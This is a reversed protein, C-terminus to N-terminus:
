ATTPEPVASRLIRLLVMASAITLGDEEKIRLLAPDYRDLLHPRSDLYRVLGERGSSPEQVLSAVALRAQVTRLDMVLGSAAVPSFGDGEAQAALHDRLWPLSLRDGVEFFRRAVALLDLDLTRAVDIVFVAAPMMDFTAARIAAAEPMGRQTFSQRRVEFAAADEGQLLEPLAAQLRALPAQYSQMVAEISGDALREQVLWGVIGEVATVLEEMAAYAVDPTLSEDSELAAVYARADLLDMAMLGAKLIAAPTGGSERLTRHVFTPGLLDVVLNTAVTAVIERRLPHQALADPFRERVAPPMDRLMLPLLAPDSPLDTELLRRYTGMKAYALLIALEPRTYTEGALLRAAREKAGPLFEVASDLAGREELYEQLSAFLAPDQTARRQALSLALSQRAADALVLESVDDTMSRLLENREDLTLVGQEVIPALLIKLNVERDSMDVGGVNHIADTDLRGGARAVEIRGLQTLGLNGGEGIVRARVEHGNIRVADNATDGVDAHREQSSKVYTGIGGNWLLDVRMRLIARVLEPGSLTEEEVDLMARVPASLPIEKANRAFVGGGESILNPDYDQWTSRPLDFLRKREEYSREPDPNPDLFIHLHNFAAVLKLARSYLLGNGFVDGSMDGIGAVTIVDKHVELGLERFHRRVSEWAGRATIGEAKHDYGHTGGSAFADGLWFEHQLAVENAVDSFTATGKDAAVVLYPDPGDHIVMGEPHVIEDAKRTDTVSLLAGVFTRYQQEVYARLAHPDSPAHEIVFGGKSGVPVIVANKTMQTKMLGLVETRFDDPRDSWRIGGRAVLGGRLHTGELGYGSVGIEFMPRPEPMAAVRSSDIKLAIAGDTFYYNTRVTASILNHLGRLIQDEALSAVQGLAEIVGADVRVARARREDLTPTGELAPDHRVEFAALLSRAVEPNRILSEAIFDLSSAVALQAYYRQYARILEIERLTMGALLALRNLKDTNIGGVLLRELAPILRVWDREVDLPQQAADQVEFVDIVRLEDGRRLPYAVQEIVRLGLNELIPLVDSLALTVYRHYIKIRTTNGNRSTEPAVLDVAVPKDGQQELQDLDAIAEEPPVDARYRDPLADFWAELKEEAAAAGDRAALAAQLHDRYDRALEAVEAELAAVDIDGTTLHTVFFFHFRVQAEDEGMALTYDVHEAELRQMLHAQIRKRVEGSFRDRPMIVMMGLGRGLPDQRLTLTVAHGQELSMLLRVDQHLTEVDSWFLESRPMSGIISVMQKYDHSGPTAGDHELVRRLTRRLIPTEEVPTSLAKSTFLGLFRREGTISGDEGYKKIGIYEMRAPRHVTSEANTKTVLLPRGGTVRERLGPSMEDLPVPTRFASREITRLIGLSTGADAQLGTVGGSDV